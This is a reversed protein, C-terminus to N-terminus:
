ADRHSSQGRRAPSPDGHPQLDIGREHEQVSTSDRSAEPAHCAAGAGAARSCRSALVGFLLLSCLAKYRGMRRTRSVPPTTLRLGGDWNAGWLVHDTAATSLFPSQSSLPPIQRLTRAFVVHSRVGAHRARPPSNSAPRPPALSPGRLSNPSRFRSRAAVTAGGRSQEESPMRLCTPGRKDM